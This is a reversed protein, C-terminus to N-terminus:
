SREGEERKIQNLLQNIRAGHEISEDIEFHIEPINRLKMYEGLKKRIFGSANKLGKLSNKKEEENGLISVYVKAFKLDPTVEASIVTCMSSVRPDKIDNMIISSIEKKVQESIRNLRQVSM